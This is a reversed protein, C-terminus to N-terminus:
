EVQVRASFIIFEIMPLLRVEISHIIMRQLNSAMMETSAPDPSMIVTFVGLATAWEDSSLTRWSPVCSRGDYCVVRANSNSAM